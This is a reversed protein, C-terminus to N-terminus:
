ENDNDLTEEYHYKPSEGYKNEDKQSDTCLFILLIIKYVGLAIFWLADKKLISLLVHWLDFATIISIIDSIFFPIFLGVLLLYGGYWWGSRGTDHLRRFTLPITLLGVVFGALPKLAINAVFVIAITWWYESRRSRGSFQSIKKTSASIAESISLQPIETYEM